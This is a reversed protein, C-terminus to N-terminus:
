RVAPQSEWALYPELLPAQSSMVLLIELLIAAVLVWQLPHVVAPGGASPVEVHNVVLLCASLYFLHIQDMPILQKPIAAM